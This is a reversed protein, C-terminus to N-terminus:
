RVTFDVEGSGTLRIEVRNPLCVIGRGTERIRGTRMCDGGPCDSKEMYVSGDSIRIENRYEGEVTIRAEESLKAEQVLLGNHYVQVVAEARDVREPLFLAFAAMALGVVLLVSIWDGRRFGLKGELSRCKKEKM